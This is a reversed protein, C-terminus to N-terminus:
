CVYHNLMLGESTVVKEEVSAPLDKKKSGLESFMSSTKLSTYNEKFCSFSELHLLLSTWVSWWSGGPKPWSESAGRYVCPPKLLSSMLAAM